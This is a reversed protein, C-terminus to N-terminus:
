CPASHASDASAPSIAGVDTVYFSPSATDHSAHPGRAPQLSGTSASTLVPTGNSEPAQPHRPSWLWPSPPSGVPSAPLVPPPPGPSPRSRGDAAAPGLAIRVAHQTRPQPVAPGPGHALHAPLDRHTSTLQAAEQTYFSAAVAGAGELSAGPVQGAGALLQAPLTIRPFVESPQRRPPRAFGGLAARQGKANTPM